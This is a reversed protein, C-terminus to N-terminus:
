LGRSGRGEALIREIDDGYGGEDDMDLPVRDSPGEFEDEVDDLVGRNRNKPRLDGKEMQRVLEDFLDTGGDFDVDDEEGLGEPDYNRPKLDDSLMQALLERRRLDRNDVSSLRILKSGAEVRRRDLRDALREQANRVDAMNIMGSMQVVNPSYNGTQSALANAEAQRRALEERIVEFDNFTRM